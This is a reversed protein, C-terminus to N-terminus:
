PVLTIALLHVNANNPLGLSAVTKGATPTLYYAFVYTNITEDATGKHRHNMTQVVKEGTTNSTCWDKETISVDTYTSDTYNIRYTGAQNGSTASGLFRISSYKGQTLTITQGTGKVANNSGDSMPGLQYSVSEFVPATNILDASYRSITTWNDYNGDARNTDYSFGDQNFVASLNVKVPTSTAAPTPTSTSVPTPTPTPSLTSTPTPTPTLTPTATPNAGSSYVEFERLAFHAWTLNASLIKVRVGKKNSVASFTTDKRENTENNTAWAVTGSSAVKTWNTSGDDSVEVDWSTPAQSQAYNSSLTSKDFNKGGTWTLTVYQPFGCNDQSVMSTTFSGDNAWSPPNAPNYSTAAATATLALNVPGPTPTPGPLPTPLPSPNWGAAWTSASAGMVFDLTGGNLIDSHKIVPIDLTVGNLKASQIYKNTDSNNTATIVFTKGNSLNLTVKSFFPSGILYEGSAPNVPYMGIASFIYWASMQGCDENGTLGNPQNTYNAAAISRVQEQTKWAQGAYDYLYAYHHCPENTHNNHGGSFHADLKAAFNSKGGMLNVLGPMDQMVCFLYNWPDGETWGGSGWSGDYNRGQMMGTSSNYLNRYNQSRGTFYNYDATNGVAKAVQAACYDDYAGELTNSAAEATKDLPVYGLQKYYTLGARAEYPTNQERDGWWRTTDQDPPTMADKYVAQYALNYDFGNFGKNIAEAVVSDAHTGIMINTYSPNPWKPMWGGEQYNQLLAKVMDNVREPAVLTILSNAARFTDWISFATYSVGNHVTDDFASYYKGYESFVKPYQLAHYMGTYFIKLQDTTAGEVDITQLKTNWTQKLTNMATDFDWAPIEQDLNARAQAISIFSTGVKVKIVENAATSFKVYAGANNNTVSTSGDSLTTGTYTGVAAFPKDFKFVFYGKFNPLRCPGYMSDMRHTNYGSIEQAASDIQVNGSISARSAEVVISSTANQPFTFKFFGCRETATLEGKITRSSGADMSVSYYYPTTSENTHTFSLKRADRAVKVSDVEPMLTVYGYDGMWIAPQHTGIFGSISTDEFAYSTASVRNERTQATWQTMGFPATVLPQVGGYETGGGGTGIYTNVYDVPSAIQGYSTDPMFNIFWTLILFATFLFRYFKMKIRRLTKRSKLSLEAILTWWGRVGEWSPSYKTLYKVPVGRAGAAYAHQV